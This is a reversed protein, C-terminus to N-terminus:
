PPIIERGQDATSSTSIEAYGMGCGPCTPQERSLDTCHPGKHHPALSLEYLELKRPPNLDGDAPPPTM